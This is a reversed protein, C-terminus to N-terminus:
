GDECAGEQKQMEELNITMGEMPREGREMGAMRRALSKATQRVVEDPDADKRKWQVIMGALTELLANVIMKPNGVGQVVVGGDETEKIVIKLRM